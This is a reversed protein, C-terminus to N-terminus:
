QLLTKLEKWLNSAVIRHGEENPHIGDELNLLPEGGVGELLFPILTMLNKAALEKFINRFETAYVKGMNPPVQMGAMVFKVSSNKAKVRDVIDQLNKRTEAL